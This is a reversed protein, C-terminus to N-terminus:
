KFLTFFIEEYKNYSIKTLVTKILPKTGREKSRMM